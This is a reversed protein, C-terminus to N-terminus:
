SGSTGPVAPEEDSVPEEELVPEEDSVPLRTEDAGEVETKEVGSPEEVRAPEGLPIVPAETQAPLGPMEAGEFLSRGRRATIMGLLLSTIIFAIASIETARKLLIPAQTGLMSQASEGGMMETLGGGRGAQLLITVILILCIIIHFIILAIYM